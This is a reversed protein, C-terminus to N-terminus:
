TQGEKCFDSVCFSIVLHVLSHYNEKWFFEVKEFPNMPPCSVYYAGHPLLFMQSVYPKLYITCPCHYAGM